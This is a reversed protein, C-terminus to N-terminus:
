FLFLYDFSISTHNILVSGRLDDWLLDYFLWHLVFKLYFIIQTLRSFVLYATRKKHWILHTKTKKIRWLQDDLNLMMMMRSRNEWSKWTLNSKNVWYTIFLWYIVPKYFKIRISYIIPTQWCCFSLPKIKFIWSIKIKWSRLCSKSKRDAPAPLVM